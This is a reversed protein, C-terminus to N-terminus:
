SRRNPYGKSVGEIVAGSDRSPCKRELLPEKTPRGEKPTARAVGAPTAGSGKSSDKVGELVVSSERIPNSGIEGKESLQKNKFLPKPGKGTPKAKELSPDHRVGPPALTM